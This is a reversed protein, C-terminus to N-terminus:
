AQAQVGEVDFALVTREVENRDNLQALQWRTFLAPGSGDRTRRSWSSLDFRLLSRRGVSPRFAATLNTNDTEVSIMGVANERWVNVASSLDLKLEFREEIAMVQSNGDFHHFEPGTEAFELLGRQEPNVAVVVHLGKSGYGAPIVVTGDSCDSLNCVRFRPFLAVSM